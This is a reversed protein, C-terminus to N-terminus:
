PVVFASAIVLLVTRLEIDTFQRVGQVLAVLVLRSLVSRRDSTSDTAPVVLQLPADRQDARMAVVQQELPHGVDAPQEVVREEGARGTGEASM